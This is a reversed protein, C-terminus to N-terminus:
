YLIWVHVEGDRGATALYKGTNSFLIAEVPFGHTKASFVNAYQSNDWIQIGWMSAIALYRGKPDFAVDEVCGNVSEITEVINGTAADSIRAENDCDGASAFSAGDPSWVAAKTWRTFHDFSMLEKSGEIDWIATEDTTGIGGVLLKRDDPSFSLSSVIEWSSRMSRVEKGSTVDWIKLYHDRSASAAYRGNNSFAVGEVWDTHAKFEYKLKREKFDWIIVKGSQDSSVMYKGDPSIAVSEVQTEHGKFSHSIEGTVLDILVLATKDKFYGGGAVIYRDDPDFAITGAWGDIAKIKMDPQASIGYFNYEYDPFSRQVQGSFDMNGTKSDTNQPRVRPIDFKFPNTCPDCDYGMETGICFAKGD